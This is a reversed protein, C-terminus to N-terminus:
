PLKGPESLEHDQHAPGAHDHGSPGHGHAPPGQSAGKLGPAPPKIPAVAAPASPAPPAKAERGCAWPLLLACSILPLLRRTM